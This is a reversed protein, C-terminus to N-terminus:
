SKNTHESWDHWCQRFFSWPAAPSLQLFLLTLLPACLWLFWQGCFNSIHGLKITLLLHPRVRNKVRIDYKDSSGSKYSELTVWPGSAALFLRVLIISKPRIPKTQKKVEIQYKGARKLKCYALKNRYCEYVEAHGWNCINIDYHWMWVTMPCPNCWGGFSIVLFSYYDLTGLFTLIAGSNGENNVQMSKEM